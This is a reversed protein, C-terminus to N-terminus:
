PPPLYRPRSDQFETLLPGYIKRYHERGYLSLATLTDGHYSPVPQRVKWKQEKEKEVRYQRALKVAEVAESGSALLLQHQLNEPLVEALERALDEVYRHTLQPM